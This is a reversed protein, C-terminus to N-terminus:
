SFVSWQIENCVAASGEQRFGSASYWVPEVHARDFIQFYCKSHQIFCQSARVATHILNNQLHSSVGNQKVLMFM